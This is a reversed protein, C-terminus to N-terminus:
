RASIDLRWTVRKHAETDLDRYRRPLTASALLAEVSSRSAESISPGDGGCCVHLAGRECDEPQGFGFWDKAGGRV